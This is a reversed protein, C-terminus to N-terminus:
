RGRRDLNLSSALVTKPVVRGDRLCLVCLVGRTFAKAAAAKGRSFFLMGSSCSQRVEGNVELVLGRLHITVENCVTALDVTVASQTMTSRREEQLDQTLTRALDLRETEPASVDLASALLGGTSLALQLKACRTRATREAVPQDQVGTQGIVDIPEAIVFHEVTNAMINEGPAEVTAKRARGTSGNSWLGSSLLDELGEGPFRVCGILVQARYGSAVHVSATRRANELHKWLQRFCEMSNIPVRVGRAVCASIMTPLFALVQPRCSPEFLDRSMDFGPCKRSARSQWVDAGFAEGVKTLAIHAQLLDQLDLLNGITDTVLPIADVMRSLQMAFCAEGSAAVYCKSWNTNRLRVTHELYQSSM